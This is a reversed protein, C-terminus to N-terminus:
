ITSITMHAHKNFSTKTEQAVSRHVTQMADKLPQSPSARLNRKTKVNYLKPDVRFWVTPEQMALILEVPTLLGANILPHLADRVWYDPHKANRGVTSPSYDLLSGDHKLSILKAALALCRADDAGEPTKGRVAARRVRLRSNEDKLQVVTNAAKVTQERLKYIEVEALEVSRRSNLLNAELHIISRSQSIVTNQLTHCEYCADDRQKRLVVNEALLLAVNAGADEGVTVNSTGLSEEGDPSQMLDPNISVTDKNLIEMESNTDLAVEAAAKKAINREAAEEAVAYFVANRNRRYEHAVELVQADLWEQTQSTPRDEAVHHPAIANAIPADSM